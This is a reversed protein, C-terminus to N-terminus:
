SCSLEVDPHNIDRTLKTFAARYGGSHVAQQDLLLAYQNIVTKCFRPYYIVIDTNWGLEDIAWCATSLREAKEEDIDHTEVIELLYLHSREVDVCHGDPVIGPSSIGLLQRYWPCFGYFKWKFSDFPAALGPVLSAYYQQQPSPTM